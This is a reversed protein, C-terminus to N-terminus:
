QGRFFQLCTFIAIALTSFSAIVISISTWWQLKVRQETVVLKENWYLKGEKDIGLRGEVGSISENSFITEIKKM